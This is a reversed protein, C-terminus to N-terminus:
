FLTKLKLADHIEGTMDKLAKYYRKVRRPAKNDNEICADMQASYALDPSEVEVTFHGADTCNSQYAPATGLKTNVIRRQVIAIARAYAGPVVTSVSGSKTATNTWVWDPNQSPGGDIGYGAFLVTDDSRIEWHSGGFISGGYGFRIMDALGATASLAM